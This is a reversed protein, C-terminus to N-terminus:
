RSRDLHSILHMMWLAPLLTCDLKKLLKKEEDATWEEALEDPSGKVSPCTHHVTTSTDMEAKIDGSM